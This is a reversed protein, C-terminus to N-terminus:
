VPPDGAPKEGEEKEKGGKGQQLGGRGDKVRPRVGRRGVVSPMRMRLSAIPLCSLGGKKRKGREKKRREGRRKKRKGMNTSIV